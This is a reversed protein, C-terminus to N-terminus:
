ILSFINNAQSQRVKFWYTQVHKDMLTPQVANTSELTKKTLM